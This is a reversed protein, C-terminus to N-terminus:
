RFNRDRTRAMETTLESLDIAMSAIDDGSQVNADVPILYNRWSQQAGHGAYYFVGFRTRKDKVLEGFNQLSELLQMKTTDLRLEVQFGAQKLLEAMDRADNAPNELAGARYASNGIVLAVREAGLAPSGQASIAAIVIVWGGIWRAVVRSIM